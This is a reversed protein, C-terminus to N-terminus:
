LGLDLQDDSDGFAHGRGAHDLDPFVQLIAARAKDAGVAVADDRGTLAFDADRGSADVLFAVDADDGAGAGQSVFGNVLERLAANALRCGDTNASVGDDSGVEDVGKLQEVFIGLGFGNDHDSLDAAIGLFDRGLIHLRVYLLWDDREDGSLGRRGSATHSMGAGDDGASVA